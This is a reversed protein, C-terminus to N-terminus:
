HRCSGLAEDSHSVVSHNQLISVELTQGTASIVFVAGSISIDFKSWDGM